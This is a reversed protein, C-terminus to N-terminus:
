QKIFFLPKFLCLQSADNNPDCAPPPGQAGQYWIINGATDSDDVFAVYRTSGTTGDSFTVSLDIRTAVPTDSIPTIADQATPAAGIAIGDNWGATTFNALGVATGLIIVGATRTGACTGNKTLYRISDESTISGGSIVREDSIDGSSDALCSIWTGDMVYGNGSVSSATISSIAAPDDDSCTALFLAVVIASHLLFLKNLM